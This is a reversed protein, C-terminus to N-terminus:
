RVVAPSCDPRTPRCALSTAAVAVDCGRKHTKGAAANRGLRVCSTRSPPGSRKESPKEKIRADTYRHRVASSGPSRNRSHVATRAGRGALGGELLRCILGTQRVSGKARSRNWGRCPRNGSGAAWAHPGACGPAGWMAPSDASGLRGLCSRKGVGSRRARLARGGKAGRRSPESRPRCAGGAREAVVQTRRTYPSRRHDPSTRFARPYTM